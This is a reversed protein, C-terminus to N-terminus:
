LRFPIIDNTVKLASDIFQPKETTQFEIVQYKLLLAIMSQNESMTITHSQQQADICVGDCTGIKVLDLL